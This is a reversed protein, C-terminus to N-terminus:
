STEADGADGAEGEVDISILRLDTPEDTEV